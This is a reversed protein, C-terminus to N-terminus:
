YLADTEGCDTCIDDSSADGCDVYPDDVVATAGFTVPVAVCLTQTMTFTCSGKKTGGCTRGATIVPKGCCTAVPTGVQAYPTVTVAVCVDTSQYGTAPCTVPTDLIEKNEM